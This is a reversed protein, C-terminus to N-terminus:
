EDIAEKVIACPYAVYISFTSCETCLGYSPQHEELITKTDITPYHAKTIFEKSM